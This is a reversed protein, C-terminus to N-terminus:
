KSPNFHYSIETNTVFHLKDQQKILNSQTSVILNMFYFIIFLPIWSDTENMEVNGSKESIPGKM